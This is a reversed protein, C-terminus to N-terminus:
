SDKNEESPESEDQLPSSIRYQEDLWKGLDSLKCRESCFPRYPSEGWPLKKGCSPCSVLLKNKGKTNM